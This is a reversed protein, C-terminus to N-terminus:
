RCPTAGVECPYSLIDHISGQLQGGGVALPNAADELAQRYSEENIQWALAQTGNGHHLDIDFIVARKAKHALHASVCRWKPIALLILIPQV